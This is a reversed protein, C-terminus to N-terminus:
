DPKLEGGSKTMGPLEDVDKAGILAPPVLVTKCSGDEERKSREHRLTRLVWGRMHPAPSRRDGEQDSNERLTMARMLDNTPKVLYNRPPDERDKSKKRKKKRKDRPELGEAKVAQVYLLAKITLKIMYLAAANEEKTNSHSGFSEELYAWADDVTMARPMVYYASIDRVGDESHSGDAMFGLDVRVDLKAVGSDEPDNVGIFKKYFARGMDKTRDSLPCYLLLSRCPIGEIIMPKPFVFSMVDHPMMIDEIRANVSMGDLLKVMDPHLFWTPRGLLTWVHESMVELIWREFHKQSSEGRSYAGTLTEIILRLRNEYGKTKKVYKPLNSQKFATDVERDYPRYYDTM